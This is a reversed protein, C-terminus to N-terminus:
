DIVNIEDPNDPTGGGTNGGPKTVKVSPPPAGPTPAAKANSLHFVQELAQTTVSASAGRKPEFGSPNGKTIAYMMVNAGMQYQATVYEEKDPPHAAYLHAFNGMTYFVVLRGDKSVGYNKMDVINEGVGPQNLRYLYGNISHNNSIAAFRAGPLIKDLERTVVDKILPDPRSDLFLFGGKAMYDRLINVEEGSLAFADDCYIYLFTPQAGKSMYKKKLEDPSMPWTDAQCPFSKNLFALLRQTGDNYAFWAASKGYRMRCFYVKGGIKGYPFGAPVGGNPDGDPVGWDDGGGGGRGVNNLDKIDLSDGPGFIDGKANPDSAVQGGTESWESVTNNNGFNKEGKAGERANPDLTSGKKIKEVDRDGNPRGLPLDLPHVIPDPKPPEQQPTMSSIELLREKPTKSAILSIAWLSGGFVLHAAVAGALCWFLLRNQTFTYRLLLATLGVGALSILVWTVIHLFTQM